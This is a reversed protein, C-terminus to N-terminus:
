QPHQTKWFVTTESFAWWKRLCKTTLVQLRLVMLMNLPKEWLIKTDPERLGIIESHTPSLFKSFLMTKVVVGQPKPALIVVILLPVRALAEGHIVVGALNPTVPILQIVVFALWRWNSTRTATLPTM